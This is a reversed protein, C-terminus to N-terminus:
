ANGEGKLMLFEDILRVLIEEEDGDDLGLMEAVMKFKGPNVRLRAVPPEVLLTEPEAVPSVTRAKRQRGGEESLATDIVKKALTEGEPL